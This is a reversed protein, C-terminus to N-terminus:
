FEVLSKQLPGSLLRSVPRWRSVPTRIRRGMEALAEKLTEFRHPSTKMAKRAVERVVWVGLPAWYSESIERVSLVAAQRGLRSLHEEAALRAAYYGGALTSYKKKPRESEFDAGIFGDQTWVSRPMWIEILEFFFPRPMLLIEFHNGLDEGSYLYYDSILPRDLVLEKLANGVMDDSATISWRTPVLKRRKGILGLSLLRSIHEVGIGACYLEEAASAAGEERDEVIKDVKRPVVPNTIIEMKKLEGSPGSPSLIGDFQLTGSPPKVFSIEMGVPVSSMAIQQCAELLRGPAEAEKVAVLAGSRVMSARLAIIEGIDMGLSPLEPSESVPVMPGARVQPYGARGVFMEPPTLGELQMGAKPLAAIEEMRRLIPCVPRGCLGRGKCAICSMM